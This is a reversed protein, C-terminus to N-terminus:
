LQLYYLLDRSHEPIQQRKPLHLIHQMPLPLMQETQVRLLQKIAPLSLRQLAAMRKALDASTAASNGTSTGSPFGLGVEDLDVPLVTADRFTAQATAGSTNLDNDVLTVVITSNVGTTGSPATSLVGTSTTFGVDSTTVALTAGGSYAGSTNLEDNYRIRYTAGFYGGIRFLKSGSVTDERTSSMDNGVVQVWTKWPTFLGTNTMKTVSLTLGAVGTVERFESFLGDSIRVVSGTGMTRALNPASMNDNAASFIISSTGTQDSFITASNATSTNITVRAATFDFGITGVFTSSNVGTETIPVAVWHTGDPSIEVTGNVADTTATFSSAGAGSLLSTADASAGKTLAVLPSVSTSQTGLRFSSSGSTLQDGFGLTGINGYTNPVIWVISNDSNSIRISQTGVKNGDPHSLSIQTAGQTYGAVTLRDGRSNTTTGSGVKAQM